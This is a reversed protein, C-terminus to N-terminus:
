AGWLIGQGFGYGPLGNVRQISNGRRQFLEPSFHM